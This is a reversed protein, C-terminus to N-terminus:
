LQILLWFLVASAAIFVAVWKLKRRFELMDAQEKAARKDETSQPLEPAAPAELVSADKKWRALRKPGRDQGRPDKLLEVLEALAPIEKLILFPGPADHGGTAPIRIRETGVLRGDYLMQRLTLIDHPGSIADGTAHQVEYTWPVALKPPQFFEVSQESEMAEPQTPEETTDESVVSPSPDPPKATM